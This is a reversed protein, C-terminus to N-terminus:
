GAAGSSHVSRLTQWASGFVHGFRALCSRGRGGQGPAFFMPRRHMATPTKLLIFLKSGSIRFQAWKAWNFGWEDGNPGLKPGIPGFIQFVNAKNSGLKPAFRM